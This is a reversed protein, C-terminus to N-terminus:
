KLNAQSNRQIEREKKYAEKTEEVTTCVYVNFGFGRLKTHIYEQIKRPKQKPRKTEVFFILRGPGIFLRDPIGVITPLLKLYICGISSVWSRTDNEITSELKTVGGGWV